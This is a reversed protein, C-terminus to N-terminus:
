TKIKKRVIKGQFLAEFEEITGEKLLDKQCVISNNIDGYIIYYCDGEDLVKKIKKIPKELPKPWLPTEVVIKEDDITIHYEWRFPLKKRPNWLLLLNAGILVGSWILWERIGENLFALFVIGSIIIISASGIAIVGRVYKDRIKITKVQIGDSVIGSFIIM